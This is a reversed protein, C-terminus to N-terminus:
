VGAVPQLCEAAFDRCIMMVDHERRRFFHEGNEICRSQKPGCLGDFWQRTTELPTAFDNDSHILLRPFDMTSLAAFDHQKLTPAILVAALTDPPAIRTVVYAGFSYGILLIPLRPVFEALREMAARADAIMLPDEPASGTKWFASMSAALDIPHGGTSDGVGAYDFRLTAGQEALGCAIEVVLKNHMSGGMLPHPNVLLCAFRMDGDGYALIGSLEGRQGRIEIREENVPCSM